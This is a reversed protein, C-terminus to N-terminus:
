VKLGLHLAYEWESLLRQSNRRIWEQGNLEELEQIRRWLIKLEDSTGPIDETGLLEFLKEPPKRGIKRETSKFFYRM